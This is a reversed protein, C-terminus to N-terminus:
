LEEKVKPSPSVKNASETLTRAHLAVAEDQFIEAVSTEFSSVIDDLLLDDKGRGFPEEVEEAIKEIGIMFYAVPVVVLPAWFAFHGVLGWPLTVLYVVILRRIFARYSHVLPTRRIRECAGCVEMLARFHVDLLTETLGDIRGDNRWAAIRARIQGAIHVPVHDPEPPLSMGQYISLQRARVGERLHEKLARAFNVLLRGVYRTDGAEVNPLSHLKLCMNRSDNVLTGWQKRGEWWRDYATNTRFVLLVGLVTGFVAHMSSSIRLDDSFYLHDVWVVALSYVTLALLVKWLRSLSAPHSPQMGTRPLLNLM